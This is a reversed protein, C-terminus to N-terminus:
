RGGGSTLTQADRPAVLLRTRPPQVPQRRVPRHVRQREHRALDLVLARARVMRALRAAAWRRHRDGLATAEHIRVIGYALWVLLAVPLLVEPPLEDITM